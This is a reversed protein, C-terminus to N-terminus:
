QLRAAGGRDIHRHGMGQERAIGIGHQAIGAHAM